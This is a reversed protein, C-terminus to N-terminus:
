AQDVDHGRDYGEQVTIGVRLEPRLRDGAQQAQASPIAPSPFSNASRGLMVGVTDNAPDCSLGQATVEHRGALPVFPALPAM